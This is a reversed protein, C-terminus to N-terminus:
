YIQLVYQQYWSQQRYLHQPSGLQLHEILEMPNLLRCVVNGNKYAIFSALENFQRRQKQFRIPLRSFDAHVMLINGSKFDLLNEQQQRLMVQELQVQKQRIFKSEFERNYQVQKPTFRNMFALHPTKIYIEVMQKMQSPTAFGLLDQGFGNRITRIVGDVVNCFRKIINAKFGTEGDGRINNVYVQKIFKTLADLIYRANKEYIINDEKWDIHLSELAEIAVTINASLPEFLSEFPM